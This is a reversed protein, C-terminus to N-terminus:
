PNFPTDTSPHKGPRARVDIQDVVPPDRGLLGLLQRLLHAGLHERHEDSALLAGAAHLGHAPAGAAGPAALWRGALLGAAGVAILALLTRPKM